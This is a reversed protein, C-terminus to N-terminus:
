DIGALTFTLLERGRKREMVFKVPVDNRDYWVWTRRDTDIRYAVTKSIQGAHEIDEAEGGSIKAPFLSGSKPSMIARAEMIAINWPNHPYVGAPVVTRGAAGDIVLQDGEARARVEYTRGDDDTFCEYRVIRGREWVATSTASFHFVTVFLLKIAIETRNEVIISSGEHRVVNTYVGVEGYRDNHVTYTYVGPPPEANVTPAVALACVCVFAAATAHGFRSMWPKMPKLRSQKGGSIM